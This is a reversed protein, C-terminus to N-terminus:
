SRKSALCLVSLLTFQGDISFSFGALYVYVVNSQYPNWELRTVDDGILRLLESYTAKPYRANWVHFLEWGATIETGRHYLGLIDDSAASSNLLIQTRKKQRGRPIPIKRPVTDLLHSPRIEFESDGIFELSLPAPKAPPVKEPVGHTSRADRDQKVTQQRVFSKVFSKHQRSSAQSPNSINVFGFEAQPASKKPVREKPKPTKKTILEPNLIGAVSISIDKLM